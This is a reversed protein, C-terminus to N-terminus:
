QAVMEVRRNKARGAEDANSAMPAFSAAGQASLRRTEIGHQAVLAAAVAEARRRSLALNADFEGQNDTHGVIFVRLAAEARLAQAMAELQAKSEPKVDAKGTDFHLGHLVAKGQAKLGQQLQQASVTVNGGEMAASEAVVLSVTAANWVSDPEAIWVVVGMEGRETRRSASLFHARNLSSSGSPNIRNKAWPRPDILERRYSELHFANCRAASDCAYLPSFGAQQLAAQYSRLIELPTAAPPAVYYYANVRGEVTISKEFQLQGNNILKSPGAPLRASAFRENAASVLVAGKFRSITPDDQAGPLEVPTSAAFAGCCLAAGALFYLTQRM